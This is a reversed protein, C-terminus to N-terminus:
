NLLNFYTKPHLLYNLLIFYTKPHIKVKNITTLLFLVNWLLDKMSKWNIIESAEKLSCAWFYCPSLAELLANKMTSLTYSAIQFDKDCNKFFTRGITRVDESLCWLTASFYNSGFWCLKAEDSSACKAVKLIHQSNEHWFQARTKDPSCVVKLLRNCSEVHLFNVNIQILNPFFFETQESIKLIVCSKVRINQCQGGNLCRLVTFWNTCIKLFFQVFIIEPEYNM